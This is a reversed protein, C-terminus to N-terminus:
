NVTMARKKTKDDPSIVPVVPSSQNWCAVDNWYILWSAFTDM